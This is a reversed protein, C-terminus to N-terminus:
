NGSSTAGASAVKDARFSELLSDIQALKDASFRGERALSARVEAAKALWEPALDAMPQVVEVGNKRLAALAEVDDRLNSEELGQYVEAMVERVIAQDEPSIRRFAKEEVVLTGILYALPFDTVYQIRTHWQLVLAAVPSSGIIDILGTQMGTLVDTIPLTVPALGFAQMTEYSIQDGEPM